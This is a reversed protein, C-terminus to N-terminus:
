NNADASEMIEVIENLLKEFLDNQKDRVEWIGLSRHYVATTLGEVRSTYDELLLKIYEKPKSLKM